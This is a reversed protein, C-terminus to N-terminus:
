VMTTNTMRGRARTSHWSTAPDPEERVSILGKLEERPFLPQRKQVLHGWFADHSSDPRFMCANAEIGLQVVSEAILHETAIAPSALRATRITLGVASTIEPEARFERRIPQSIRQPAGRPRVNHRMIPMNLRRSAAGSPAPQRVTRSRTAPLPKEGFPSSTQFSPWGMPYSATSIGQDGRRTEAFSSGLKHTSGPLRRNSENCRKPGKLNLRM